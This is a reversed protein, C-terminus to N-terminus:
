FGVLDRKMAYQMLEATTTLGLAKILNTKHFEVTRISVHIIGAMEKSPAGRPSSSYCRAKAPTREVFVGAAEQQGM